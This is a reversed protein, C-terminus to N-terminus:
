VFDLYGRYNKTNVLRKGGMYNAGTMMSTQFLPNTSYTLCSSILNGIFRTAYHARAEQEILDTRSPQCAYNRGQECDGSIEVEM